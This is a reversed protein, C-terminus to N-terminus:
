SDHDFDGEEYRQALREENVRKLHALPKSTLSALTMERKGLAGQARTVKWGPWAMAGRAKSAACYTSILANPNSWKKLKQFM